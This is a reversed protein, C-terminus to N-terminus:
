EWSGNIFVFLFSCWMCSYSLSSLSGGYIRRVVSTFLLKCVRVVCVEGPELAARAIRHARGFAPGFKLSPTVSGLDLVWHAHTHTLRSCTHSSQTLRSRMHTLRSRMHTLVWHARTHTLRSLMVSVHKKLDLMWHTTTLCGTYVHTLSGAVCSQSPYRSADLTNHDLVWHARTHTLRSRM